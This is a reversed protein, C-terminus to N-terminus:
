EGNTICGVGTIISGSLQLSLGQEAALRTPTGSLQKGTM